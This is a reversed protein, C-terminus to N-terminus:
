SRDGGDPPQTAHLGGTATQARQLCGTLQGAALSAQTLWSGLHALAAQPDGRHPGTADEGLVGAGALGLLFAELQGLLQPLGGVGAALNGLVWYVQAPEQLGSGTQTAHNLVRVTQAFLEAVAVTNQGSHPGDVNLLVDSM